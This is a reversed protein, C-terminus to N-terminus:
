CHRAVRDPYDITWQMAQMAGLSGSVIAAWRDIGV